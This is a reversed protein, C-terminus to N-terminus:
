DEAETEAESRALREEDEQEEKMMNKHVSASVIISGQYLFFIPLAVFVQTIPDPPTIVAGVVLIAVFAHKRYEKMLAPTVVGIKSLFYVVMPLQFMLGCAMVMMAITSVYSSLDIENMISEDVQYSTLFNIALPSLIFYGFFVGTLFLLTVFFVAGSTVKQEHSYLGPKVFRWLEWFAYPFACVLGVVVSALIHMTFQGTMVRNQIEFSLKEICLADSGILDSLKCLMRYTIFDERKPGFIVVGFVIPKAIFAIISFVLVSGVARMLHWRLEELHDLFSMEEEVPPEEEVHVQDLGGINAPEWKEPLDNDESM